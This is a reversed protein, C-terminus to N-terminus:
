DCGITTCIIRMLGFVAVMIFLGVTGWMIHQAGETREKENDGNRIFVFVGYIFYLLALSFLLIILPNVIADILKQLLPIEAM